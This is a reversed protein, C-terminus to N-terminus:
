SVESIAKTFKGNNLISSVQLDEIGIVDHSKTIETSTKDLYDKRTNALYERTKTVKM